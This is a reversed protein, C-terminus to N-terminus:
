PRFCECPEAICTAVIAWDLSLTNDDVIESRHDVVARM